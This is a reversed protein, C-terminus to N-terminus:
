PNPQTCDLTAILEVIFSRTETTDGTGATVIWGFGNCNFAARSASFDLTPDLDVFRVQTGDIDDDFPVASSNAFVEFPDVQDDPGVFVAIEDGTPSTLILTAMPSGHSPEGVYVNRGGAARLVPLAMQETPTEGTSDDPPVWVSGALWSKAMAGSNTTNRTLMIITEGSVLNGAWTDDAVLEGIPGDLPLDYTEAQRYLEGPQDTAQIVMSLRDGTWAAIVLREADEVHQTASWSCDFGLAQAFLQPDITRDVFAGDVAPKEWSADPNTLRAATIAESATSAAEGPHCPDSPAVSETTVTSPVSSSSASVTDAPGTTATTLTTTSGTSGTDTQETGSNSCASALLLAAGLILASPRRM